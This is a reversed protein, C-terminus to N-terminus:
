ETRLAIMPDVRTARRAPIYSAALAVAALTAAVTAFVQLDFASVEYLLANLVRTTGLATLVGAVIGVATVKAGDAVVLRLVDRPDAGLAMRIGMEHTRQAVSYSLVGYIGISALLLGLAAFLTLMTANFRPRSITGSIMAELTRVDSVPLMPDISQLVRTVPAQLSLPDDAETKVIVTLERSPHNVWNLYIAKNPEKDLGANRVNRVVGVIVGTLDESWEFNIRRGIPSSNGFYASAFAENIVYETVARKTERPDLFRGALLTMGMARFYDGAVFRIHGGPEEGNPLPANGVIEVGTAGIADTFPMNRTVAMRTVGPVSSVQEIIQTMVARQKDPTDNSTPLVIHMTLVGDATVGSDVSQLKAFSKILLGAGILLVTALAVEAVVLVNRFAKGRRDSSAGRSTSKLGTQLNARSAKIAPALGFFLATVFALLIAVGLARGDIGIENMRPVMASEPTFRVLLTTAWGAVIMGTVGGLLALVLSETLLQRVLRGRSAGLASRVAMEKERSTARSLLLNAINVCAILLLLGVSALVVLLARRVNGVVEEHLPFVNIGMNTNRPSMKETRTAVVNMHAQAQQLTAGPALRAITTLYRGGDNPVPFGAWLDARSGPLSFGRGMVGIITHAEGDISVQRGIVTRDGGFKQQWYRYSLVIVGAGGQKADEPTIVRGLFPRVGVTPFLSGSVLGGRIEAPHGHGTLTLPWDFHCGMSSFIRKEEAWVNYNRPSAVNRERGDVVNREWIHVLRSPDDYPLPRLLVANVVTFIATTAGIGIALTLVAFIAFGPNARLSRISFRIDRWFTEMHTERRHGAGAAATMRLAAAM